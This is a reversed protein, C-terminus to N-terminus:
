GSLKEVTWSNFDKGIHVQWTPADGNSLDLQVVNYVYLGDAASQLGVVWAMAFHLPEPLRRAVKNPHWAAGPRFLFVVLAKGSAYAEGGKNRKNEIQKLILTELDEAPGDGPRNAVMVHETRYGSAKDRNYLIGDGGTPDSTPVWLEKGANYDLTACILWNVLVERPLANGFNQLPKGTQLHEPNRIFLALEKLAAALDKIRKVSHKM